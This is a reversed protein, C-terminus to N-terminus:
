TFLHYLGTGLLAIVFITGAIVRKPWTNYAIIYITTLNTRMKIEKLLGEYRNYALRM